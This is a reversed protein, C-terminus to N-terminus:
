MAHVRSVLNVMALTVRNHSTEAALRNAVAAGMCARLQRRGSLVGDHFANFNEPHFFDWPKSIPGM